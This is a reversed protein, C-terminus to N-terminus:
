ADFALSANKAQSIEQNNGCQLQNGSIMIKWVKSTFNACDDALARVLARVVSYIESSELHNTTRAAVPLSHRNFKEDIFTIEEHVSPRCLKGTQPNSTVLLVECSPPQLVSVRTVKFSNSSETTRTYIQGWVHSLHRSVENATERRARYNAPLGYRSRGQRSM